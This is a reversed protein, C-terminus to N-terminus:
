YPVFDFKTNPVLPIYANPEITLETDSESDLNFAEVVVPMEMSIETILLSSWSTQRQKEPTEQKSVTGFLFKEIAAMEDKVSFNELLNAFNGLDYKNNM